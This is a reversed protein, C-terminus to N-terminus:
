ELESIHLTGSATEQIVAIHTHQPQRDGGLSYVRGVEAPLFHDTATAVVSGDGTQFRCDTKSFIEIVRTDTNFAVSNRNTAGSIAIEHAGSALPRLVQTHAGGTNRPMTNPPM